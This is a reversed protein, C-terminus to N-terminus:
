TVDYESFDDTILEIRESQIYAKGLDLVLVDILYRITELLSYYDKVTITDNKTDIIHKSFDGHVKVYNYTSPSLRSFINRNEGVSIIISEEKKNDAKEKKANSEYIKKFTNHQNLFWILEYNLQELERLHRYDLTKM